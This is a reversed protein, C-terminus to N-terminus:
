LEGHGLSTCQTHVFCEAISEAKGNGEILRRTQCTWNSRSRQGQQHVVFTLHPFVVQIAQLNQGTVM